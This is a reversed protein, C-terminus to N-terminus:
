SPPAEGLHERIYEGDDGKKKTPKHWDSIHAEVEATVVAGDQTFLPRDEKNVQQTGDENLLPELNQYIAPCFNCGFQDYWNNPETTLPM